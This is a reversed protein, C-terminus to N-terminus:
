FSLLAAGGDALQIHLRSPLTNDELQVVVREDKWSLVPLATPGEATEALVTGQEAGFLAGDLALIGDETENGTTGTIAPLAGRVLVSGAPHAYHGVVMHQEGCTVLWSLGRGDQDAWNALELNGTEGVLITGATLDARQAETGTADLLNPVFHETGQPQSLLLTAELACGQAQLLTQTLQGTTQSKGGITGSQFHLANPYEHAGEMGDLVLPSVFPHLWESQLGSAPVTFLETAEEAGVSQWMLLEASEATVSVSGMTSSTLAVPIEEEEISITTEELRNGVLMYEYAQEHTSVTTHSITGPAAHKVSYTDYSLTTEFTGAVTWSSCTDDAPVFLTWYQTGLGTILNWEAVLQDTDGSTPTLGKSAAGQTFDLEGNRIGLWQSTNEDTTGAWLTWQATGEDTSGQLLAGCSGANESPTLPFHVLMWQTGPDNPEHDVYIAAIFDGEESELTLPAVDSWETKWGTTTETGPIWGSFNGDLAHPIVSPKSHVGDGLNESPLDYALSTTGYSIPAFDLCGSIVLPAVVLWFLFASKKM